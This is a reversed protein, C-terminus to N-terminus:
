RQGRLEALRRRFSMQFFIPTISLHRMSYTPEQTGMKEPRAGMEESHGAKHPQPRLVTADEAVEALVAVSALQVQEAEPVRFGGAPM